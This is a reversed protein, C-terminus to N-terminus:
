DTKMELLGVPRVLYMQGYENLYLDGVSTSRTPGCLCQVNSNEWWPYGISNTLRFVQDLLDTTVSAVRQYLETQTFLHEALTIAESESNYGLILDMISDDTKRQSWDLHYVWVKM